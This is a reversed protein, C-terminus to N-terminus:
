ESEGGKGQLKNVLGGVIDQGTRTDKVTPHLFEEYSPMPFEDKGFMKGISWLMTATYEQWAEQHQEEKLM